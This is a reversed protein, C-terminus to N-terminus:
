CGLNAKVKDLKAAYDDIASKVNAKRQEVSAQKDEVAATVKAQAQDLDTKLNSPLKSGLADVAQTASQSASEVQSLQDDSLGAVTADTVKTQVSTIASCAAKSAVDTLKAKAASSCGATLVLAVAVAAIATMSRNTTRHM